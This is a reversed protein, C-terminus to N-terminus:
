IYTNVLRACSSFSFCHSRLVPKRQLRGKEKIANRNLVRPSTGRAPEYHGAGYEWTGRRTCGCAQLLGLACYVNRNKSAASFLQSCCLPNALIQERLTKLVPWRAVSFHLAKVVPGVTPRHRRQVRWTPNLMFFLIWILIEAVAIAICHLALSRKPAALLISQFRLRTRAM